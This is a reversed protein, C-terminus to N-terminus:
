ENNNPTLLQQIEDDYKGFGQCIYVLSSIDENTLSLIDIYEEAHQMSVEFRRSILEMLEIKYKGGKGKVWPYYTSDDPLYSILLKYFKESPIVDFFRYLISIYELFQPNMSLAKLIMFHNLDFSKKNDESLNKYYDPDRITRIHKVHDFLGL